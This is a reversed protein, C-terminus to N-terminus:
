KKVNNVRYNDLLWKKFLDWNAQITVCNSIFPNYSGKYKPSNNGEMKCNNAKGFEILLSNLHEDQARHTNRKPKGIDIKDAVQNLYNIVGISARISDYIGM